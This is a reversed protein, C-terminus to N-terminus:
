IMYLIRECSPCQVVTAGARARQQVNMPLSIRCGQCAGGELKAVARGGKNTRLTEYLKLLSPDIETAALEREQEARAIEAEIEQRRQGMDEQEAGYQEILQNVHQEAESAQQQAQELADMAALAADELTSRRRKLSDIDAQLAELEKPPMTGQYLKKELPEIKTKLEDAQFESEKFEHEAGRLAEQASRHAARAETLEEPEDLRSDIDAIAARDAAVALDLEQLGYLDSISTV